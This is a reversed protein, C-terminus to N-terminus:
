ACYGEWEGRKSLMESVSAYRHSLAMKSCPSIDGNTHAFYTTRGADRCEFRTGYHQWYEKFCNEVRMFGGFEQKAERLAYLANECISYGRENFSPFRKLVHVGQVGEDRLKRATHTLMHYNDSALVLNVYCPLLAKVATRIATIGTIYGERSLANVAEDYCNLSVCLASLGVAKLTLYTEDSCLHGSTALMSYMGRRTCLAIVDHVRKYLM